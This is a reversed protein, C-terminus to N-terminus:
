LDLAQLVGVHVFGRLGGSSLVLALPETPLEAIAFPRYGPAREDDHDPGSGITCGGLLAVGGLGALRRLLARRTPLGVREGPEATACNKSNKGALM